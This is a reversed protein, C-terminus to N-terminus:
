INRSYRCGGSHFRDCGLFKERTKRNTKVRLYGIGCQPCGSLAAEQRIALALHRVRRAGSSVLARECEGSTGGFSYVDDVVLYQGQAKSRRRMSFAGDIALRREAPTLTKYNPITRTCELEATVRVQPDLESRLQDRLLEFRDEQGPKPPVTTICDIKWRTIELAIRITLAVRKAPTGTEKFKEIWRVYPHTAHRGDKATYYRGLAIHRPAIDIVSGRHAKLVPRADKPMTLFEGLYGFTKTQAGPRLLSLPATDHLLLDPAGTAFDPVKVDGWCAAASLAVNASEAAAHDTVADGLAIVQEASLGLQKCGEKLYRGTELMVDAIPGADTTRTMHFKIEIRATARVVDAAERLSAISGNAIARQRLEAARQSGERRVYCLLTSQADTLSPAPTSPAPAPLADSM